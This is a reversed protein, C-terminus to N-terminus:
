KFQRHVSGEKQNLSVHIARAAAVTSDGKKIIKELEEVKDSLVKVNSNTSQVLKSATEVATCLKLTLATWSHDTGAHAENLQEYHEQFLRNLDTAQSTHDSSSQPTEQHHQDAVGGDGEGVDSLLDGICLLPGGIGRM